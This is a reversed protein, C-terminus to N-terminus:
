LRISFILTAARSRLAGAVNVTNPDNARYVDPIATGQNARVENAFAELDAAAEVDLGLNYSQRASDLKMQLSNLVAADIDDANADMVAQLKNFKLNVVADTDRLDLVILFDSFEGSMGRVRYSGVGAFNTIDAFQGASPATLLRFAPNFALNTTSLEIHVAGTFTLSSSASPNVSVMVPFASLPSINSPDTLRNLFAPDTPDIQVATLDLADPRLGVVQEFTIKLSAKYLGAVDVVASIENGVIQIQGVNASFGAGTCCLLVWLVILQKKM